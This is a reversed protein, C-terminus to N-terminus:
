YGRRQDVLGGMFRAQYVLKEDKYIKEFSSFKKINGMWKNLYLFEGEKFKKPGRFLKNEAARLAKRLFPYLENPNLSEIVWGYYVTMHVPKNKYHIVTRGGYPEGGFFNDHFKWDGSEYWITTSGDKEQRMHKPKESEYGATDAEHKFRLLSRINVM